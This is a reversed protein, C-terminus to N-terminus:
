TIVLTPKNKKTKKEVRGVVRAGKCGARRLKKVVAGSDAPSVCLTMGIGCNFVGFMDSDNLNASEKILEFIAPFEWSSKELVAVCKEPLSRPINELLGGGTIHALCHINFNEFVARLPRAYIKTPELLEEVLPRSLGGPTSNLSFKRRQLIAKRVFSYGNSHIGSSPLAIIEDGEVAKSRDIYRNKDVIGVAFGAFDFEDKKYFGPMEATEGGLLACGADICGRAVGKIVEAMKKADLRSTSIYDLFFLPTAGSTLIDNVCMAVLDIGITDMRGAAFAIKLKTGVGDAAGVLYSKKGPLMYAGSFGGYSKPVNKDQTAQVLPKILSVFRNGEKTNVGSGSYTLKKKAM